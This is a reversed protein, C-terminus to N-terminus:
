NSITFRKSDFIVIFENELGTYTFPVGRKGRHPHVTFCGSQASINNSISGPIKIIKLGPYLNQKETNLIWISIKNNSIDNNKKLENIIINEAVIDIHMSIDGGAGRELKEAAEKTGLLPNITNYVKLAISKLLDLSIEM